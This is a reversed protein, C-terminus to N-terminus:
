KLEYIFESLSIHLNISLVLFALEGITIPPSKKLTHNISFLIKDNATSPLIIIKNQSM